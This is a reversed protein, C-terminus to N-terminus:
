VDEAVPEAPQSPGALWAGASVGALTVAVGVWALPHIREGFALAGIALASVPTLQMLLGAVSAKIWRLAWTMGLQAGVSLTAVALLLAWEGGSPWVWRQVSPGLTLLAGGLNFAAFIEWAGDSRRLARITAVAAGSLVAGCLGVLEWRNFLAPDGPPSQGVVLLAVGGLALALALLVRPGTREGLFIAAWLATFAPATYQLLTAIGVPLHEISLFYCYVASGGFLARVALGRLNRARLPRRQHWALCVLTGLVFRILAVEPGPVRAAALKAFAAMAAFGLASISLVLTASPAPRLRPSTVRTRERPM